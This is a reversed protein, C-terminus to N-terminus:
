GDSRQESHRDLARILNLYTTKKPIDSQYIKWEKAAKHRTLDSVLALCEREETESLQREQLYSTFFRLRDNPAIKHSFIFNAGTIDEAERLYRLVSNVQFAEGVEFAVDFQGNDGERMWVQRPSAIGLIAKKSHVRGMAGGMARWIARCKMDPSDTLKRIFDPLCLFGPERKLVLICELPSFLGGRQLLAMPPLVPLGAKALSAAGAFARETQRCSRPALMGLLKREHRICHLVIDGGGPVSISGLKRGTQTTEESNLFFAASDLIEPLLKESRSVHRWGRFHGTKLGHFDAVSKTLKDSITDM